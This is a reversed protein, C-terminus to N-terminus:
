TVCLRASAQLNCFLCSFKCVYRFTFRFLRACRVYAGYEREMKSYTGGLDYVICSAFVGHNHRVPRVDLRNVNNKRRADHM